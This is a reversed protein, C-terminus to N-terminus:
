LNIIILWKTTISILFTLNHYLDTYIAPHPKNIVKWDNEEFNRMGNNRWNSTWNTQRWKRRTSFTWYVNMSATQTRANHESEMQQSCIFYSFSCLQYIWKVSSDNSVSKFFSKESLTNVLLNFLFVSLFVKLCSLLM